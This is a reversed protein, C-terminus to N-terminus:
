RLVDPRGTVRSRLTVACDGPLTSAAMVTVGARIVTGAWPTSDAATMRSRAFVWGALYEPTTM